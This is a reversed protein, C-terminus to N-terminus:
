CSRRRSVGSSSRAAPSQKRGGLVIHDADIDDALDIIGESPPQSIEGITVDYGHEELHERVRKVTGIRETSQMADPADLEEGTLAHTVTVEVDGTRWPQGTIFEAQSLAREHSDDVPVLVRYM